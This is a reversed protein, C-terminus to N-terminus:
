EGELLELEEIYELKNVMKIANIIGQAAQVDDVDKFKHITISQCSESEIVLKYHYYGETTKLPEFLINM